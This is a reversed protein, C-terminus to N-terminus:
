CFVGEIGFFFSLTVTDYRHPDRSVARLFGMLIMRAGSVGDCQVRGTESTTNVIPHGPTRRTIIYEGESPHIEPNENKRM